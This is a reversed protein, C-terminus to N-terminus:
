IDRVAFRSALQGMLEDANPLECQLLWAHVTSPISNCEQPIFAWGTVTKGHTMLNNNVVIAHAWVRGAFGHRRGREFIADSDFRGTTAIWPREAFAQEPDITEKTRVRFRVAHLLQSPTTIDSSTILPEVDIERLLRAVDHAHHTGRAADRHRAVVNAAVLRESKGIDESRRVIVFDSEEIDALDSGGLAQLLATLGHTNCSVVQVRSAGVVRSHAVGTMFPPGFGTESGQAVVGHLSSWADYQAQSALANGNPGCDFVFGIDDQVDELCPYADDSARTVIVAGAAQLRRVRPIDWDPVARRIVYVNDVPLLERLELLLSTLTEGVTGLGIIAVNM